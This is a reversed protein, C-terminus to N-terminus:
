FLSAYASICRVKCKENDAVETSQISSELASIDGQQSLVCQINAKSSYIGPHQYIFSLFTSQILFYLSTPPKRLCSQARRFYNNSKIKNSRWELGGVGSIKQSRSQYFTKTYDAKRACAALTLL